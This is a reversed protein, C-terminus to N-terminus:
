AAKQAAMMEQMKKFRLFEEFEKMTEADMGVPEAMEKAPEKKKGQLRRIDKAKLQTYRKLQTWDEHGTFMAVEHIQYDMEFLRSTGEHRLDHFHLDVIGLENCADAFIEGIYQAEFPFIRKDFEGIKQRDIIGISEDLLPVTQHNGIKKTPHKRDTILITKDEKNFTTIEIRTIEARRMASSIAFRIIDSMPIKKTWKYSLLSDIEDQSPRRDRKKSKGVLGLYKLRAYADDLIEPVHYRWGIRAMELMTRLYSFHFSGSAPSFERDEIYDVIMQETIKSLLTKGMFKKMAKLASIGSPAIHDLAAMYKDIAEAITVGTKGQVGIKKGANIAVEQESAWAEAAKKAAALTGYTKVSFTKTLIPQGARRVQARHGNTVEIISAM